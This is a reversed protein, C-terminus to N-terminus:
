KRKAKDTSPMMWSHCEIEYEDEVDHEIDGKESAQCVDHGAGALQGLM